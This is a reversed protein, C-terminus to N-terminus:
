RILPEFIQVVSASLASQIKQRTRVSGVAGFCSPMLKTSNGISWGPTVTFGISRIAPLESKQSHKKSLTFASFDFRIPWCFRPQVM